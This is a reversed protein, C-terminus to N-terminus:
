KGNKVGYDQCTGVHGEFSLKPRGFFNWLITDLAASWNGGHSDQRYQDLRKYLNMDIRGPIDKKDGLLRKGAKPPQPAKSIDVKGVKARKEFATQFKKDIMAMLREELDELDKKSVRDVKVVNDITEPTKEKSKGPDKLPLKKM